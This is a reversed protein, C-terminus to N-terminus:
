YFKSNQSIQNITLFYKNVKVLSKKEKVIRENQLKILKLM